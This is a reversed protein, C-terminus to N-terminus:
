LTTEFYAYIYNSGGNVSGLLRSSAFIGSRHSIGIGFYTEKLRQSGFLDGVSVDITPDLYNLLKSTPRGRRAQSTVEPSPVHSAYSVGAGFGIRTKVRHSWPFGYYFVKMYADIQWADSQVDNMENRYLLGVYGHFDLPWGNLREIFPGGLHVGTISSPQDHELSTCSLNMIKVMHCGEGAGRGYFVKVFTPVDDGDDWRATATGFDYVAGAFVAPQMGDRVIPSDRVASDHVTLAVGGILRWNQLFRYTGYLAVTYDSGSGSAYAPRAAAAEGPEVGYYYDNLRSDRFSMSLDARLTWRGSRWTYSYGLRLESGQSTNSIDQLATARLTGWSFRRRYRLGLDAGANRPRMGEAVDPVDDQPFGELRRSLFLDFRHIGDDFLKYGARDANLFFREGEYLYLPLLDSRQGAGLYPSKEYRYLFGLGASGPQVLLDAIADTDVQGMARPGTLACAIATLVPVLAREITSRASASRGAGNRDPTKSRLQAAVSLSM